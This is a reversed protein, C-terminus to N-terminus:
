RCRRTLSESWCRLFRRLEKMPFCKISGRTAAPMFGTARRCCSSRASTSRGRRHRGGAGAAMRCAAPRDLPGSRARAGGTDHREAPATGRRGSGRQRAGCAGRRRAARAGRRPDGSRDGAGARHRRAPHPHLPRHRRGPDAAQRGRAGRRDVARAEAAWDAASCPEAGDGTGYLRHPPGRRRRRPRARRSSACIAISRRATPTSSRAAADARGARARAGVQRQRDAGRYARAAAAFPASDPGAMNM